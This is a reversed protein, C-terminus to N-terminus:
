KLKKISTLFVHKKATKYNSRRLQGRVPYGNIFCWGKYTFLKKHLNYSVLTSKCLNYDFKYNLSKFLGNINGICLFWDINCTKLRLHMSTGIRNRLFKNFGQNIGYRGNLYNDLTTPKLIVGNDDYISRLSKEYTLRSKQKNSLRNTYLNKQNKQRGLFKNTRSFSDFKNIDDVVKNLFFFFSKIAPIKALLRKLSKRKKRNFLKLSNYKKLMVNNPLIIKELISFVYKDLKLLIQYSLSKLLNPKKSVCFLVNSIKINISM